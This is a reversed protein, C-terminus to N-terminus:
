PKYDPLKQGGLLSGAGENNLRDTLDRLSRTTARLDRIAAEAEPITNDSLQRM